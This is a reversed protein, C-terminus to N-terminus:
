HTRDHIVGECPDASCESEERGCGQCLPEHRAWTLFAFREADVWARFEILGRAKRDARLDRM